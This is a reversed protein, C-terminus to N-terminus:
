KHVSERCSLHKIHVFAQRTFLYLVQTVMTSLAETEHPIKHLTQRVHESLVFQCDCLVGASQQCLVVGLKSGNGM